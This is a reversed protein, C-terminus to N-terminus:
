RICSVASDRTSDRAAIRPNATPPVDDESYFEPSVPAVPQPVEELAPLELAPLQPEIVPPQPEEDDSVLDVVVPAVPAAVQAAPAADQDEIDEEVRSVIFNACELAILKAEWLHGNVLPSPAGEPRLSRFVLDIIPFLFGTLTRQRLEDPNQM